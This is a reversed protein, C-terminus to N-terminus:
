SAKASAAQGDGAARSLTGGILPLAFSFHTGKDQVSEVELHTGHLELIEKCLALGLGLGRTSRQDPNGGRFFRECLRPLEQAPIGRGDDSVTLRVAGQARTATISIRTGPDNHKVANSLLNEVVRELLLRDGEVLLGQTGDLRIQSESLLSGMREVISRMFEGLDIPEIHLELRGAEARSFDLLRTIVDHLSLANQLIRQLFSEILKEDMSRWRDKLTASMGEIVTLPTRLEHSVNSVFDSKLRNTEALRELARHEQEFRHANELAQGAQAALLEVAEVEESSPSRRVRSAVSLAAALRGQIWVPTSIVLQVGASKLQPMGQPNDAYDSVIATKATSYVLGHAGTTASHRFDAYGEPLGRHNVIRYTGDPEFIGINSADFGLEIGGQVMRELVTQPDLSSMARGADAVISLLRARHAAEANARMEAAMTFLMQDSIRSAIFALTVLIAIRLVLVGPSIGWGTGALTVLYAAISFCLFAAQRRTPYVAAFFVTTLAYLFFFESRAGGTIAVAITVLIVDVVSWFYLRRTGQRTELLREWPLLTRALTGTIGVILLGLFLEISYLDTDAFIFYILAASGMLAAAPITNRIMRVRFPILAVETEDM